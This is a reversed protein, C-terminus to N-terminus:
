YNSGGAPLDYFSSPLTHGWQGPSRGWPKLSNLYAVREALRLAFNALEKGFTTPIAPRGHTRALMVTKAERRAMASLGVALKEYAPIMVSKLASLLLRAYALNNVDESTLGLHVFPALEERGSARLRNVLHVELAKVDHGLDAELGKVEEYSVELAPIKSSPAVGVRMLFSLYELEIRAREQVLSEQSFFPSLERVEEYYRDDIPSLPSDKM